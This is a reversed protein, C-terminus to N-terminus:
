PPGANHRPMTQLRNTRSTGSSGKTRLRTRLSALPPERCLRCSITRVCRIETEKEPTHTPSGELAWSRDAGRGGLGAPPTRPTHRTRVGELDVPWHVRKAHSENNRRGIYRAADIHNEAM